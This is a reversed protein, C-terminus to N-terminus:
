IKKNTCKLNMDFFNCIKKKNKRRKKQQFKIFFVFKKYNYM